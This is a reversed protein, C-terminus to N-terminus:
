ESNLVFERVDMVVADPASISPIVRGSQACTIPQENALLYYAGAFAQNFAAFSAADSVNEM